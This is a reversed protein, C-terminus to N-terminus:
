RAEPVVVSLGRERLARATEGDSGVLVGSAGTTEVVDAVSEVREGEPRHLTVTARAGLRSRVVNLAEEGDRRATPDADPAFVHVAHVADPDRDALRDCLLAATHLDDVALLPTV